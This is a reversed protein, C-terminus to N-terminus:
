AWARKQMELDYIYDKVGVGKGMRLNIVTMGTNEFETGNKSRGRITWEVTICNTGIMDYLNEACVHHVTFSFEPFQELMQEFFTRIEEKGRHIRSVRTMGPYDFVADDAWASLFKDLRRHSLHNFSRRCLSKAILTGIM